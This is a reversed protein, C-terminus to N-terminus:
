RETDSNDEAYKRKKIYDAKKRRYEEELVDLEDDIKQDTLISMKTIFFKRAIKLIFEACLGASGCLFFSISESIKADICLQGVLFGAFGALFIAVVFQFVSHKDQQLWNAIGGVIAICVASVIFQLNDNNDIM